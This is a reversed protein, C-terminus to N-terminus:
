GSIYCCMFLWALEPNIGPINSGNADKFLYLASTTDFWGSHDGRQQIIYQLDKTLPYVGNDEDMNAIYEMLCESYSEKKVFKGDQDYFYKSVGSSELITKFSALYKSDKGLRVLVLPGDATNLHFFGDAENFVLTYASAAATLDFEAITAGAPLVYPQLSVTANYVTWPEDEVSYEPEGIRRITLICNEVSESDVGIVLVTTGTNSTGIMSSRVSITFANDKVEVSSSSHVYHPAGYYGIVAAPDSTTFQYTGPETPTFLFYSRSGATLKVYTSGVEVPYATAGEGAAALSNPEGSVAKYLTVTKEPKQATLVLDATDYYYADANGTFMLKVTYEGAPMVKEAVGSDNVAVMAVKSGNQHFEVIVGTTYPKGEADLVTVKYNPNALTTPTPDETKKGCACLLVGVCLIVTLLAIIRNTSAKKM